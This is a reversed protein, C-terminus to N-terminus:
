AVPTRLALARLVAARRAGAIAPLWAVMSSVFKLVRKGLPLAIAV